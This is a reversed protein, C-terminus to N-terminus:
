TEFVDGEFCVCVCVKLTEDSEIGLNVISFMLFAPSYTESDMWPAVELAELSTLLLVDRSHM